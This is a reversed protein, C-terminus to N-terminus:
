ARRLYLPLDLSSLGGRCTLWLIGAKDQIIHSAFEIPYRKFTETTRDFRNLSQDCGVWIAGDRDKFLANVVVGDLSNPNGPDHVFIKFSYGDYRYLGYRTAFWMFSHDGQVIHDVKIHSIGQTTSLRVFRNDTADVIPLKISTEIPVRSEVQPPAAQGAMCMSPVAGGFLRLCLLLWPRPSLRIPGSSSM